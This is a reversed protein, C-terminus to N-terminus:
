PIGTDSARLIGMFRPKVPKKTSNESEPKWATRKTLRAPVQRIKGGKAAKLPFFYPFFYVAM